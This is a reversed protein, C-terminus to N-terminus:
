KVVREIGDRVGFLLVGGVIRMAITHMGVTPV